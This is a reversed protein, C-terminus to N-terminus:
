SGVTNLREPFQQSGSGQQTDGHEQGQLAPTRGQSGSHIRTCAEEATEGLTCPDPVRWGLGAPTALCDAVPGVAPSCEVQPKLTLM